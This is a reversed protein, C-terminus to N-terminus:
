KWPIIEPYCQINQFLKRYMLSNNQHNPSQKGHQGTVDLIKNETVELQEKNEAGAGAILGIISVV